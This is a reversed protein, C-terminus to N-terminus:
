KKKKPNLEGGTEEGGSRHRESLGERGRRRSLPADNGAACQRVTEASVGAQMMTTAFLAPLGHLDELPVSLRKQDIKLCALCRADRQDKWRAPRTELNAQSPFDVIDGTLALLDVSAAKANSLAEAFSTEPPIPHGHADKRLASFVDRRRRGAELHAADRADVQALHSDTLHM